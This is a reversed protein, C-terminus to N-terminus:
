HPLRFDLTVITSIDTARGDVIYPRYRWHRVADQAAGRLLLHGRLVRIASVGGDPSVVVQLVVSGEVHMLRALRPYHPEPASMLSGTMLGSSIFFVGPSSFGRTRPPIAYAPARSRTLASRTSGPSYAADATEPTTTSRQQTPPANPANAQKVGLPTGSNLPHEATSQDGTRTAAASDSAATGLPTDYASPKASNINGASFPQDAITDPVAPGGFRDGVLFWTIAAAVLISAAILAVKYIRPRSATVPAPTDAMAYGSFNLARSFLAMTTEPQPETAPFREQTATPEPESATVPTRELPSPASAPKETPAQTEHVQCAPAEASLEDPFPKWLTRLVGGLFDVIQQIPEQFERSTQDMVEGSVAFTILELLELRSVAERERYVIARVMSSMEERFFGPRSLREGLSFVDQPRGFTLKRGAFFEHLEEVYLGYRDEVNESKASLAM